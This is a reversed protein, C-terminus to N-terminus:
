RNVSARRPCGDPVSPWPLAVRPIELNAYFPRVKPSLEQLLLNPPITSNQLALSTKILAALGAVGESHGIVTKVSGVFLKGKYPTTTSTNPFFATKLAEAEVPDGAQTGTGTM